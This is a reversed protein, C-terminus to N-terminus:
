KQNHRVTLRRAFEFDVTKPIENQRILCRLLLGNPLVDKNICPKGAFKM